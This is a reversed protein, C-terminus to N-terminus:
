MAKEVVGGLKNAVWVAVLVQMSWIFLEFWGFGFVEIAAHEGPLRLFDAVTHNQIRFRVDLAIVVPIWYLDLFAFTALLVLSTRIKSFSLPYRSRLTRLLAGVFIADVLYAIV